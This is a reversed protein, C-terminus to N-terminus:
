RKRTKTGWRGAKSRVKFIKSKVTIMPVEAVQHNGAVDKAEVVLRNKGENLTVKAKFKGDRDSQTRVGGISIVVGPASRGSIVTHKRRQIRKKPRAVKLFLSTPIPTPEAPALEPWATSQQGAKIEVTKGKASFSVQGKKTAVSVQGKGTALVSFEGKDTQAVADSGKSEVHLKSGSKGNVVASIRGVDIRVRAAARSIEHVSFQSLSEVTVTATKGVDLVAQGTKDTRILEQPKLHEGQRLEVWDTGQGKRDVKGVVSLVEIQPVKAAPKKPETSKPVPVPGEKADFVLWYVGQGLAVVVIIIAVAIAVRKGM